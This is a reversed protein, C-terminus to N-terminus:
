FSGKREVDRSPKVVVRYLWYVVGIMILLGPWGGAPPEPFVAMFDGQFIPYLGALTVPVALLIGMLAEGTILGSAFLLGRRDGNVAAEKLQPEAKRGLRRSLKARLRGAAFAVLGGALIPVSLSFPLYIGVAVALVPTRFASGKSKLYQDLTIILIAIVAGISVMGWPLGGEFVGKAVSAMLTAQPAALPNPHKSLWEPTVNMPVGVGYKMNLLHLIPSLVLSSAVVGVILMFEQKWPTAGVIYGAKLDQLNDGSISAAVCVVAGILIAAAPGSANGAGLFILLVIASFLITAITVGSIPNNSSGVLGAMYGAVAAFLFGAILMLVAMVISVHLSRVVLHYMAFLPIVAFASLAIVWAMPIDRDTRLISIGGKEEKLARLGSLVGTLLQNRLQILAWLGGVCMAGVGLYRIRDSWLTTAAEVAGGAPAGVIVSYLPIAIWWSIAGGVFVLVAINLGVIYGVGLLAASLDSGFYALSSGVRSGVEFTGTWLKLGSDQCLKLFGGAATATLMTSLAGGEKAAHGAKLVEATAIGEPFKIEHRAHVVLARRLPVSFLVGITGGLATIMMTQMYNYETWYGLIVLAPITFVVGAAVAEGASAATQVINNELINNKRFLSFVAMSIVAAPITASVTMGAFLGLYANAGALVVALVVALLMGKVTIEPLSETHAIVPQFDEVVQEQIGANEQVKTAM